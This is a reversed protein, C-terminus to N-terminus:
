GAGTDDDGWANAITDRCTASKLSSEGSEVLPEDRAVKEWQQRVSEYTKELPAAVM